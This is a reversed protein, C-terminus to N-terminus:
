HSGCPSCVPFSRNQEWLSKLVEEANPIPKKTNKAQPLTIQRLNMDIDQMSLVSKRLGVSSKISKRSLRGSDHNVARQIDSLKLETIHMERILQLRTDRIIRYGRITSPSLINNRSEIYQTFAQYVTMNKSKTGLVYGKKYDDTLKLAEWETEAIDSIDRLSQWYRIKCWIKKYLAIRKERKM